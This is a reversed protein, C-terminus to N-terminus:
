EEKKEIGMKVGHIGNEGRLSRKRKKMKERITDRTRTGAVNKRCACSAELHLEHWPSAFDFKTSSIHVVKGDLWDKEGVVENGLVHRITACQERQRRKPERCCCYLWNKEKVINRCDNANRISFTQMEMIELVIDLM